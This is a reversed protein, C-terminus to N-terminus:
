YRILKITILFYNCFLSLITSYTNNIHFRYYVHMLPFIVWNYTPDGVCKLEKMKVSKDKGCYVQSNSKLKNDYKIKRYFIIM